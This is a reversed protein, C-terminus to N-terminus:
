GGGSRTAGLIKCASEVSKRMPAQDIVDPLTIFTRELGDGLRVVAYFKFPQSSESLAHADCRGEIFRVPVEMTSQDSRLTAVPGQSVGLSVFTFNITNSIFTVEITDLSQRRTLRLVGETVPRGEFTVEHLDAFQIEVQRIIHQRECDKLYLNRAFHKVDFVPVELVRGDRLTAKVVALQPDPMSDQTGDGSCNAQALPVPFDIRDGAVVSNERYAISTTLGDWVFQVAVVDVSDSTGNILQVQFIGKAVDLRNQIPMAAFVGDPIAIPTEAITTAVTLVSGSPSCGALIGAIAVAAFARNRDM